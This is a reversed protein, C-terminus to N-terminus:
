GRRSCRHYSIKLPKLALRRINLPKLRDGSRVDREPLPRTGVLHQDHGPPILILGSLM